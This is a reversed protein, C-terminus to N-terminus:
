EFDHAGVETEEEVTFGDEVTTFEDTWGASERMEIVQAAKLKLSVYMKGDVLSPRGIGILRLISGSGVRGAYPKKQSDVVVPRATYVQGSRDKGESRLRFKLLVTGDEKEEWPFRTEAPINKAGTLKLLQRHDEDLKTLQQIFPEAQERTLEATAKYNGYNDPRDLYVWQCPVAQTQIKVSPTKNMM